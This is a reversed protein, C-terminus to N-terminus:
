QSWRNVVSNILGDIVKKQETILMLLELIERRFGEDNVTLYRTNKIVHQINRGLVDIASKSQKLAKIEDPYLCVEGEDRLLTSNIRFIAEKSLSWGHLEANLKLLAKEHQKLYLWLKTKTDDIEIPKDLKANGNKTLTGSIAAKVFAPVSLENSAAVAEYAVYEEDSVRFKIQKM